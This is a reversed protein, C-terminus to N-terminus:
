NDERFEEIYYKAAVEFSTFISGTKFTRTKMDYGRVVCWQGIQAKLIAVQEGRYTKVDIPNCIKEYMTVTM